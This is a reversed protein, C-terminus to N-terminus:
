REGATSNSASSARSPTLPARSGSDSSASPASGTPNTRATLGCCARGMAPWSGTWPGASSGKDGVLVLGPRLWGREVELLEALVEREGRRPSALCWAVPLGDAAILLYL